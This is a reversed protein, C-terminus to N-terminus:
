KSCHRTRKLSLKANSTAPCHFKYKKIKVAKMGINKKGATFKVMSRRTMNKTRINSKFQHLYSKDYPAHKETRQETQM